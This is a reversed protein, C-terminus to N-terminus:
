WPPATDISLQRRSDRPERNPEDSSPRNRLIAGRLLSELRELRQELSGLRQLIEQGLDGEIPPGAGEVPVDPEPIATELGPIAIVASRDPDVAADSQVESSESGSPPAARSQRRPAQEIGEESVRCSVTPRQPYEARIQIPCLLVQGQAVSISLLRSRVRRESVSSGSRRQTSYIRLKRLGPRLYFVTPRQSEQDWEPRERDDIRVHDISWGVRDDNAWGFIVAARDPLRAAEPLGRSEFSVLTPTACGGLVGTVVVVVFSELAIRRLTRDRSRPKM